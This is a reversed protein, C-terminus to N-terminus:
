HYELLYDRPDLSYGFKRVRSEFAWRITRDYIQRILNKRALAEYQRFYRENIDSRVERQLPHTSLGLFSHVHSMVADPTRVFDEYRLVMLRSLHPRDESFREHCVLWHRILNHLRTNSWKGTAYSVAVPHRLIVIGYSGPFLAQLFRMRVLNPPSKEVLIPKSLDWHRSWESILRRRKEDTVLPSNETLHSERRFGFRGPGGYVGDVPYVTQLHQGEDEPVGTNSFISVDPHDGVCRHFLSTGSRHLGAIFVIRGLGIQSARAPKPHKM